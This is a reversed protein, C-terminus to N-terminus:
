YNKQRIQVIEDKKLFNFKLDNLDSTQESSESFINIKKWVQTFFNPNPLSSISSNIRNKMDNSESLYIFNFLPDPNDLTLQIKSLDENIKSVLEKVQFEKYSVDLETKLTHNIVNWHILKQTVKEFFCTWTKLSRGLKM